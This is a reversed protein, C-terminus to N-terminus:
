GVTFGDTTAIIFGNVGFPTVALKFTIEAENATTGALCRRLPNKMFYFRIILRKPALWPEWDCGHSAGFRSM